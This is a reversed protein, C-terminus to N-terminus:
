YRIGLADLTEFDLQGIPLDSEEQFSVIAKRTMQDLAGNVSGDYYRKDQLSKQISQVFSTTQDEECVVELWEFSRGKIREVEREVVEKIFNKSQSTDALVAVRRIIPDENVLCWVMCDNPDASLCNQDAMKKVWKTTAPQIVIEKEILDVDEETENGTYVFYVETETIIRDTFLCKAYCNGNRSSGSAFQQMKCQVFLVVVIVSFLLAKLKM